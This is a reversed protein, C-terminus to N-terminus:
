YIGKSKGDSEMRLVPDVMEDTTPNVSHEDNFLPPSPAPIAPPHSDFSSAWPPPSESRDASFRWLQTNSPLPPPFTASALNSSTASSFHGQNSLATATQVVDMNPDPVVPPENPPTLIEGYSMRRTREAVEEATIKIFKCTGNAVARALTELPVAGGRLESPNNWDPHTWGVLKVHYRRVVNTEYKLYEMTAASNGTTDVLALQLGARIASKTAGVRGRYNINSYAYMSGSIGNALVASEFKCALDQPDKRLYVRLFQEVTPSTFFIKPAMNLSSTGRVMIILAETGIRNKLGLLEDSATNFSSSAEAQRTRATINPPNKRAGDKIKDFEEVLLKRKASDLKQYDTTDQVLERLTAKEGFAKDNNTSVGKFHMYAHWASTKNRKKRRLSSGVYFRELYRRPSTNFRTALEAAKSEIYDMVEAVAQDETTRKEQRRQRLFARMEPTVRPTPARQRIVLRRTNKFHPKSATTIMNPVRAMLLKVWRKPLYSERLASCIAHVSDPYGLDELAAETAPGFAQLTLTPTRSSHSSGLASSSPILVASDSTPTSSGSSGLASGSPISVASDSTQPASAPKHNVAVATTSAEKKLKPARPVNTEVAPASNRVRTARTTMEVVGAKNWTISQDGSSPFYSLPNRISALSTSPRGSIIFRTSKASIPHPILPATSYNVTSQPRQPTGPADKWGLGLRTNTFSKALPAAFREIFTQTIEAVVYHLEPHHALVRPNVYLEAKLSQPSMDTGPSTAGPHHLFITSGGTLRDLATCQDHINAIIQDIHATRTRWNERRTHDSAREYKTTGTRFHEMTIEHFTGNRVLHDGDRHLGHVLLSFLASRWRSDLESIDNLQTPPPLQLVLDALGDITPKTHFTSEDWSTM